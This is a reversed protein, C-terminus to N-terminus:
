SARLAEPIPRRLCRWGPLVAGVVGLLLGAALGGALVGPGIAIGFIGMSFRIAVGDLLTRAIAAAVLGGAAATIVSEALLARLIAARGYGLTRLTGIERIRGAFTAYSTNLGGVVGGAAVLLATALVMLRIPGFLAALSAYYETEPLATIELDLRTAAFAQVGRFDPADLRVTVCSLTNRQTVVLLDSLPMWAEGEVVGGDAALVGVVTFPRDDVMLTRDISASPPDFGLSRAALRGLAIEDAGPTPPRGHTLSVERHVLFAEPNTGRILLNAGVGDDDSRVPMAAHIEPSIAEVGGVTAVGRLSAALIGPTRMPIESREISEESGLGLVIANRADGSTRLADDMGRVFGAAAVVLVVVLASGGAAMLMRGPSRGLNRIAYEFPLGRM